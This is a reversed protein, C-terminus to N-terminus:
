IAAKLHNTEIWKLEKGEFELAKDVEDILRSLASDDCNFHEIDEEDNFVVGLKQAEDIYILGAQASCKCTIVEQIIGEEIRIIANM